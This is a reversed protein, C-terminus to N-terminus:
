ISRRMWSSPSPAATVSRRSSRRAYSRVAKITKTPYIRRAGGPPARNRITVKRNILPEDFARLADIYYDRWNFDGREPSIVEVGVVPVWGPDHEM